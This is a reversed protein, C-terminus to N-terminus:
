AGNARLFMGLKAALEIAGREGLNPASGQLVEMSKNIARAEIPPMKVWAQLIESMVEKESMDDMSKAQGLAELTQNAQSKQM